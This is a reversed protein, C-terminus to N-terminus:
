MQSLSFVGEAECPSIEATDEVLILPQAVEHEELLNWKSRLGILVDGKAEILSSATTVEMGFWDAAAKAISSKLVLMSRAYPSLIGTPEEGIDPYHAFGVFCVTLGKCRAKTDTVLQNFRGPGSSLTHPEHDIPVSVKVTTGYGVESQVDINGGINAVIQRVISLGLGTGMSLQDEQAFPTFLDYKLYNSSIGKGSDCIQLNIYNRAPFQSTPPATRGGVSIHVFGSNTYKVANGCLNMIIRKWSSVQAKLVGPIQCDISVIIMVRSTSTSLEALTNGNYNESGIPSFDSRRYDQGAVIAEVANVVLDAFDSTTVM